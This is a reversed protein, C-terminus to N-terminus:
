GPMGSECQRRALTPGQQSVAVSMYCSMSCKLIEIHVILLVDLTLVNYSDPEIFSWPNSPGSRAHKQCTANLFPCYPLPHHSGREM